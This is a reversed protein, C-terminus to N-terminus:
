DADKGGLYSLLTALGMVAFGLFAVLWTPGQGIVAAVCFAASITALWDAVFKLM